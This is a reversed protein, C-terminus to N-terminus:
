KQKAAKPKSSSCSAKASKGSKKSMCPMATVEETLLALQPAGEWIRPLVATPM